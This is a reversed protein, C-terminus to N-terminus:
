CFVKFYNLFLIPFCAMFCISFWIIWFKLSKTISKAESVLRNEEEDKKLTAQNTTKELTTDLIQHNLNEELLPYEISQIHSRNIHQLELSDPLDNEKSTKRSFVPTCINSIIEGESQYVKELKNTVQPNEHKQKDINEQEKDISESNDNQSIDDMFVQCFVAVCVMYVAIVVFFWSIKTAIEENFYKIDKQGEMVSIQPKINLPNVIYQIIFAIVFPTFSVGLCGFFTSIGPNGPLLQQIMFTASM